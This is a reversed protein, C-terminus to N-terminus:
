SPLPPFLYPAFSRIELPQSRLSTALTLLWGCTFQSLRLTKRFSLPMSVTSNGVRLTQFTTLAMVLLLREMRQPCEIKSQEWRLGGRKLDKFGCEIWMRLAYPHHQVQQPHLDTIILSPENYCSQWMVMLTCAIPHDKFCDVRLILPSMGRFALQKLRRWDATNSKRYYGEPNIRMMPHWGLTKIKEFVAKSRLGRDALVYVEYEPTLAISVQEFLRFWIPNWGGKESGRRVAWGVPIACSNILISLVLIMYRDKLYTVDIALVVRKDTWYKLIWKLLPAFCQEVDVERRKRGRKQKSEYLWERLRQRLNAPSENLLLSLFGVIVNLGCRGTLLMGYSYLGLVKAQSGSLNPLERSM